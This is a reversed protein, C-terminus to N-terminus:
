RHWQYYTSYDNNGTEIFGKIQILSLPDTKPERVLRWPKLEKVKLITQPGIQAITHWNLEQYVNEVKDGAPTISTVQYM